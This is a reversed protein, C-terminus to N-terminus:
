RKRTRLLGNCCECRHNDTITRVDCRKCYKLGDHYGVFYDEDINDCHGKCTPPMVNTDSQRKRELKTSKLPLQQPVYHILTYDLQNNHVM